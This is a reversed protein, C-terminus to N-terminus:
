RAAALIDEIEDIMRDIQELLTASPKVSSKAKQDIAADVTAADRGLSPFGLTLATGAIKHSIQGIEMLAEHPRTHGVSLEQLELLLLHKANLEGIFRARIRRLGDSLESQDGQHM